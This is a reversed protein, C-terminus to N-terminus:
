EVDGNERIKQIEYPMVKLAFFVLFALFYARKIPNPYLWGLLQDATTWRPNQKWAAILRRYEVYCRDGPVEMDPNERHNADVFPM